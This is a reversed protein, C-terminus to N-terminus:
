PNPADGFAATSEIVHNDPNNNIKNWPDYVVYYGSSTLMFSGWENPEFKVSGDTFLVNAGRRHATHWRGSSTISTSPMEGYIFDMALADTSKTHILRPGFLRRKNAASDAYFNNLFLYGTYGADAYSNWTPFGTRINPCFFVEKTKTYPVYLNSESASITGGDLKYLNFRFPYNWYAARGLWDHNDMAYMRMALGVQRLQSACAVVKAAERARNLAPLLIAILTSIIGIVVLLEVLTFGHTRKM